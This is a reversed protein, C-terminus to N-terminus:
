DNSHIFTTVLHKGAVFDRATDAIYNMMDGLKAQEAKTLQSLVFSASARTELKEPAIGVRLRTYDPSLHANLSKIGNNGADSGKDRLRLTGIPLALDDHIVLFDKSELKYFDAIARACRGVENYYTQPKVLVVREGDIVKEAIQAQFKSSNKWAADEVLQDLVWFGINHRTGRYHSDPNGLGFIVKM